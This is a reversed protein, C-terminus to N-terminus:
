GLTETVLNELQNKSSFFEIEMKREKKKTGIHKLMIHFIPNKSLSITSKNDVM